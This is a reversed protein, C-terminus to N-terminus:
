RGGKHRGKYTVAHRPAEPAETTQPEDVPPGADEVPVKPMLIGVAADADILAQAFGDEFDHTTGAQFVGISGTILKKLRVRM